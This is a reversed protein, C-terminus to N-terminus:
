SKHIHDLWITFLGQSYGHVGWYVGNGDLSRDFDAEETSEKLESSSSICISFRNPTFSVLLMTNRTIIKHYIRHLTLFKTQKEMNYMYLVSPGDVTNCQYWNLEKDLM